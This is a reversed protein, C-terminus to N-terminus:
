SAPPSFACVVAKSMLIRTQKVAKFKSNCQFKTRGVGDTSCCIEVDRGCFDFTKAKSYFPSQSGDSKELGDDHNSQTQGPQGPANNSSRERNLVLTDTLWRLTGVLQHLKNAFGAEMRSLHDQVGELNIKLNKIKEEDTVMARIGISLDWDFPM